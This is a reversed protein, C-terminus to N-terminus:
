CTVRYHGHTEPLALEKRMMWRRKGWSTRITMVARGGESARLDVRTTLLGSAPIQARVVGLCEGSRSRVVISAKRALAARVRIALRDRAVSPRVVVTAYPIGSAATDLRSMARRHRAAWRRYSIGHSDLWRELYPATYFIENGWRVGRIGGAVRERPHTRLFREWSRGSREIRTRLAALTRPTPRGARTIGVDEPKAGMRVEDNYVVNTFPSSARYFGQKFYVGLSDRFLTSTYTKPIMPKGDQWVELFGLKPDASWRIHFVFDMWRDTALPLYWKKRQFELCRGSSSVNEVYLRPPKSPYVGMFIPSPCVASDHHWQSLVNFDLNGDWRQKSPIFTSWAYYWEEGETGRTDEVDWYVQSLEGGSPVADGPRVEFRAAYRGSRVPSTVISARETRWTPQVEAWQSFDGTEYDARRNVSARGLSGAVLTLGLLAVVLALSCAAANKRAVM